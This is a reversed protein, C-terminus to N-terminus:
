EVPYGKDIWDTKFHDEIKLVRVNTYGDKALAAFAPKVNPCNEWPCCGCYLVIDADKPLSAVAQKMSAIGEERAGPGAYTSGPIHSSTYLAEFGVHLLHPKPASANGLTQALAAPTVTHADDLAISETSRCAGITFLLLTTAWLLLSSHRKM